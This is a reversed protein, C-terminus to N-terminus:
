FLALLAMWLVQLFMVFTDTTSDLSGQPSSKYGAEFSACSLSKQRLAGGSARLIKKHLPVLRMSSAYIKESVRVRQAGPVCCLNM